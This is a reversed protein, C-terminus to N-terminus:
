RLTAMLETKEAVTNLLDIKNQYSAFLIRKANEDNPNRRVQKQMKYIARDMLALNQEYEVRFSPRLLAEDNDAASKALDDITDLYLREEALPSNLDVAPQSVGARKFKPNENVTKQREPTFSAKVAQVGGTIPKSQKKVVALQPENSEANLPKSVATFSPTQNPVENAQAISNEPVVSPVPVRNFSFLSFLVVLALGSAFAASPVGYGSVRTQKFWVLVKNWAGTVLEPKRSANIELADIENNIRAWIRQTPVAFENQAAFAFDVAATENEAELMQNSCFECLSFHTAADKLASGRLEGDLFAHITGTDLHKM